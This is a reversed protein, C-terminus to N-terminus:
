RGDGSATERLDTKINDKCMGYTHRSYRLEIYWGDYDGLNGQGLLTLKM